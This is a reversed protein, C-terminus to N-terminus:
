VKVRKRKSRKQSQGSEDDDSETKVSQREEKKQDQEKEKHELGHTKQPKMSSDFVLINKFQPNAVLLVKQEGGEKLFTAPQINGRELGRLLNIKGNSDTLEKIPYKGLVEPLDFGYNQHFQKLKFNGNDEREKFDMQLWAKYPQKEKNTLEKHVPRGSLLNYAEKATVGAGLKVYFTQSKDQVADKLIATYSNLFYRDSTESKGFEVKYRMEDKMGDPRNYEALHLLAFKDPKDSLNRELEPYLKEGFGLFKLDNKLYELNKDKENEM